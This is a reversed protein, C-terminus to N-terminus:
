METAPKVSLLTLGIHLTQAVASVLALRATTLEEDNDVIFRLAPDERGANWLSHFLSALEILYFCIRHPEHTEAATHVLAPWSALQKIVRIEQTHLLKEVHTTDLPQLDNQRLVSSCRAHAYQVYFVPNDRSKETVKAYDFELTQDSRRTLMIFRMVDPGVAQMVDRLTVFTGARKSMKVPKGADLLSVLQCLKVDLLNDEGSIARVAAKMRKVYGGHDAGWINILKGNTRAVKDAHYAVDSAFYTWSKDSKQLPRDVDDGFDTAKFLLQERPEWDDPLQGKPPELVGTYVLAKDSLASIADAVQATEVLKRESSFVDMQIGLETLDAQISQMMADITFDRIVALWETEEKDMFKEGFHAALQQGVEILYEGPYLGEAITINEKGLAQLYRLYASRALIDVQAGADNIYYERTVNYGVFSLLNSLVDGLIAGRAHAAHLPGTPNASVFEVNVNKEQEAQRGYDSGQAVISAIEKGWIGAQLTINIFGPGAIEVTNIEPKTGLFETIKEALERPKMGIQKSLVMAANTALDGHNEDRPLEVVVRSIDLIDTPAISQCYTAIQSQFNTFINMNSLSQGWKLSVNM